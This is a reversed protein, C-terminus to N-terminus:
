AARRRRTAVGGALLAGAMLALSTPEPVTSAELTFGRQGGRVLNALVAGNGDYMRQYSNGPGDGNTWSFFPSFTGSKSIVSFWYSQGPAVDFDLALDLTFDYLDLTGTGFPVTGGLTRAVLGADYDQSYLQSQPGAADGSWFEVTWVATNPAAGHLGNADTVFYTGRWSVRDITAASGVAFDDFTQYGGQGIGVQSTWGTSLAASPAQQYVVAAEAGGAALALASVVAAIATRLTKM